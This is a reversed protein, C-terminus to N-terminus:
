YDDGGIEGDSENSRKVLQKRYWQEYAPDNPAPSEDKEREKSPYYVINELYAAADLLDDHTGRPFQSYEVEFDHLGQSILIRGWEFRPVLGMIRTEKSKDTSPKIGKVPLIVGRRRMEEDLMYLLAKQYAVDEIGIINCKFQNHVKFILNIIEPPTIKFRQATRMYWFKDDDVDIVVLATFDADKSQSIAPDIFAFTHKKAPIPLSQFYKIWEKKFPQNGDPVIENQYQNAFLYSGMIRKQTDLFEQSLREPFFLSGDPRIAKEYVASWKM